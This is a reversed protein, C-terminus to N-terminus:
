RIRRGYHDIHANNYEAIINDYENVYAYHCNKLNHYISAEAKNKYTRGVMTKRWIAKKFRPAVNKLETIVTIRRRNNMHPEKHGVFSNANFDAGNDM